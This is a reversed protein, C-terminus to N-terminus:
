GGRARKPEPVTADISRTGSKRAKSAKSNSDIDVDLGLTNAMVLSTTEETVPETGSAGSIAPSAPSGPDHTFNNDEAQVPLRWARPSRGHLRDDVMRHTGSATYSPVGTRAELVGSAGELDDANPPMRQMVVSSDRLGENSPSRSSINRALTVPLPKSAISRQHLSSARPEPQGHSSSAPLDPERFVPSTGASVKGKSKRPRVAPISRPRPSSSSETHTLDRRPRSRSTSRTRSGHSTRRSARSSSELLESNQVQQELNPDPDPDQEAPAITLKSMDANPSFVSDNAEESEPEGTGPSGAAVVWADAFQQPYDEDESVLNISRFYRSAAVHADDPQARSQKMYKLYLKVNLVVKEVKPQGEVGWPIRELSSTMMASQTWYMLTGLITPEKSDYPMMETITASTYDISFVGFVWYEYTTIVFFHDGQMVGYDFLQAWMMEEKLFSLKHNPEEDVQEASRDRKEDTAALKKKKRKRIDAPTPLEVVLRRIAPQGDDQPPCQWCLDSKQVLTGEGTVAGYTYPITSPDCLHLLTEATKGVLTDVWNQVGVEDPPPRMRTLGVNTSFSFAPLKLQDYGDDSTVDEVVGDEYTRTQFGTPLDDVYANVRNRFESMEFKGISRLRRLNDPVRKTTSGPRIGQLPGSSRPTSTDKTASQSGSPDTTIESVSATTLTKLSSVWGMPPLTAAKVYGPIDEYPNNLFGPANTYKTASRKLGNFLNHQPQPLNPQMLMPEKLSKTADCLLCLEYYAEHSPDPLPQQLHSLLRQLYLPRRPEVDEAKIPPM